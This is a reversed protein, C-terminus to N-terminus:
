KMTFRAQSSNPITYCCRAPRSRWFQSTADSWASGANVVSHYIKEITRATWSAKNAMAIDREVWDLM